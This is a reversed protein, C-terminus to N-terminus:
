TVGIHHRFQNQGVFRHFFHDLAEEESHFHQRDDEPQLARIEITASM